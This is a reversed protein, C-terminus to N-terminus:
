FLKKIMAETGFDLLISGHDQEMIGSIAGAM